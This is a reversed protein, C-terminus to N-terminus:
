TPWTPWSGPRPRRGGRRGPGPRRLPLVTRAGDIFALTRWARAPPTSAYPRGDAAPRLRVAAPRRGPGSPHHGPRRQGDPRRPRRLGLHQVAPPRDLPGATRRLHGPVDPPHPGPGLAPPRDARRRDRLAPRPRRRPGDSTVGAVAAGAAARGAPRRAAPPSHADAADLAAADLGSTPRVRVDTAELVDASVPEAARAGAGPSPSSTPAPIPSPRGRRRAPSSSRHAPRARRGPEVLHGGATRPGASASGDDWAPEAPPAPETRLPTWPPGPEAGPLPPQVPALVASAGAATSALGGVVAAVAAVLVALPPASPCPPWAPAVRVSAAPPPVILTMGVLLLLGALRAPGSLDSGTRM